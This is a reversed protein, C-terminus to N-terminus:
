EHPKEPSDKVPAYCVIRHDDCDCTNGGNRADKRFNEADEYDTFVGIESGAASSYICGNECVVAFLKLPDKLKKTKV